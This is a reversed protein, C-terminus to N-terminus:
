RSRPQDYKVSEHQQKTLQFKEASIYVCSYSIYLSPDIFVVIWYCLSKSQFHHGNIYMLGQTRLGTFPSASEGTYILKNSTSVPNAQFHNHVGPFCKMYRFTILLHAFGELRKLIKASSEFVIDLFWSEM